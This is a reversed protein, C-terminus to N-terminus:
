GFQACFSDADAVRDFIARFVVRFGVVHLMTLERPEIEREGLWGRMESMHQAVSLNGARAVVVTKL